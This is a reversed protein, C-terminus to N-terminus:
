GAAGSPDDGAVASQVTADFPVVSTFRHVAAELMDRLPAATKRYRCASFLSM